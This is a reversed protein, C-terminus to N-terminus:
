SRGALDYNSFKTKLLKQCEKRRPIDQIRSIRTTLGRKNLYGEGDEVKDYGIIRTIEQKLAKSDSSNNLVDLLKEDSIYKRKRSVITETSIEENNKLGLIFHWVANKLGRVNSNIWHETKWEAIKGELKEEIADNSHKPLNLESVAQAAFHKAIDSIDDRRYRLPPVILIFRFRSLLGSRINTDDNLFEYLNTAAIIRTDRASKENGGLRRYKGTEMFRMLMNLASRPMSQVEDLFVVNSDGGIIGDKGKEDAGTFSGKEYGFLESWALQETNFISCDVSPYAANNGSLRGLVEAFLEKGSGTEGFILVHGKPAQLANYLKHLAYKLEPSNGKIPFNSKMKETWLKKLPDVTDNAVTTSFRYFLPAFTDIIETGTMHPCLIIEKKLAKEPPSSGKNAKALTGSIRVASPAKCNYPIVPALSFNHKSRYTNFILENGPVDTELWSLPNNNYWPKLGLYAYLYDKDEPKDEPPKLVPPLAFISKFALTGALKWESDSLFKPFSKLDRSLNMEHENHNPAIIAMLKCKDSEIFDDTFYSNFTSALLETTGINKTIYLEPMPGLIVVDYAAMKTLNMAVHLQILHSNGPLHEFTIEPFMQKFTTITNEEFGVLLVKEIRQDDSM